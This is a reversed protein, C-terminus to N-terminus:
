AASPPLDDAVRASTTAGHRWNIAVAPDKPNVRKRPAKGTRQQELWAQDPLRPRGIRSGAQRDVYAICRECLFYAAALAGNCTTEMEGPFERCHSCLAVQESPLGPAPVTRVANDNQVTMDRIQRVNHTLRIAARHVVDVPVVGVALRLAAAEVPTSDSNGGGDTSGHRSKYGDITAPQDDRSIIAHIRRRLATYTPAKLGAPGVLATVTQDLEACTADAQRQARSPTPPM